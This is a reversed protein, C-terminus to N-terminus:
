AASSPADIEIWARRASLSADNVYDIVYDIMEIWARRASLSPPETAPLQRGAINRDVSEKRLAVISSKILQGAGGIEIWARRASLSTPCFRNKCFNAIEIWARRASLSQVVIVIIQVTNFNRDVSEKRLAVLYRILALYVLLIEIWARRASLSAASMDVLRSALMEIWARRASLSGGLTILSGVAVPNRDVSEKRLAVYHM